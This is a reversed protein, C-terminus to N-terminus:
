QKPPELAQGHTIRLIALLPVIEGVKMDHHYGLPVICNLYCDKNVEIVIRKQSAEVIKATTLEVTQQPIM